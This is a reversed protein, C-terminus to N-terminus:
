EQQLQGAHVPNDSRPRITSRRRHTHRHLRITRIYRVFYEGLTFWFRQKLRRLSYTAIIDPVFLIEGIEALHCALDVDEHVLSDDMHVHIKEWASKRLAMNPGHLHMHGTLLRTFRTYLRIYNEFFHNPVDPDPSRFSGTVAVVQPNKEFATYIQELWDPYVTADADTRAIIDAKAERFGRERAPTMGQVPEKVVRAGYKIAIKATNDHSNNDVVIIEFNRFTQKRLSELCAPLYSEENYAPIVVSIKPKLSM